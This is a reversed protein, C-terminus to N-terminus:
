LNFKFIIKVAVMHKMIVASSNWSFARGVATLKDKKTLKVAFKMTPIDNRGSYLVM